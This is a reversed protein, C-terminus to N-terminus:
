YEQVMKREIESEDNNTINPLESWTKCDGLKEPGNWWFEFLKRLQCGQSVLGAPNNRTPVYNWELYSHERTKAVRNTVLVKYETKDKFWHLVVNSESWAYFNRVKQNRLASKINQSLNAFMQVAILELRPLTLNRKALRSKSTILGQSIKNPQYIVIDYPAYETSVQM